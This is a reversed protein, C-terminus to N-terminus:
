AASWEVVLFNDARFGSQLAAALWRVQAARIADRSRRKSEAFLVDDDRWCLVDWAGSWAPVHPAIRDLIERGQKPLDVIPPQGWYATRYAKRYTDIWVGHWGAELMAWLIVLEAFGPRGRFDLVAKRNYTEGPAAGQWISFLPATKPIEVRVGSPLTIPATGRPTLLGPIRM